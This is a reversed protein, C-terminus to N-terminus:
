SKSPRVLTWLRVHPGGSLSQNVYPAHRQVSPALRSSRTPPQPWIARRHGRSTAVEEYHERSRRESAAVAALDQPARHRLARRIRSRTRSSRHATTRCTPSLFASSTSSTRSRRLRTSPTPPAFSARTSGVRTSVRPLSITRSTRSLDASTAQCWKGLAAQCLRRDSRSTAARLCIHKAFYASVYRANWKPTSEQIGCDRASSRNPRHSAKTVRTRSSSCVSAFRRHYSLAHAACYSATQHKVSSTWSTSTNTYINLFIIVTVDRSGAPLRNSSPTRKPPRLWKLVLSAAQFHLSTIANIYWESQQQAALAEIDVTSDPHRSFYDAINSKGPQHVITYEFQTLRLAWREIRAPPRAASNGFILQIARNDTVLTFPKGFLYLWLRECGWVAALAEKECQSYRRETDTLLRSAFCVIRRDHQDAPNAQALVVGLGVPSADVIVETAWTPDFYALCRTTIACKLQEFAHQEREGWHWKVGGKTLNRLPETISAMDAIFRASYQASGLLSRLESVNNPASAEKLAKVRDLTPAAGQASFSIGFFTLQTRYLECKDVNLTLGMEELRELVALLHRQHEAETRGFVLVDDTMNIQGACGALISRITDTFIESASAIGMHLRRYRYLGQHTVIATLQRSQEALELQHFAKTLDLKSFVTAGNVALIIDDLTKIPYRQRLVAKNLQKSDCTLRVKLPTPVITQSARRPKWMVLPDNVPVIAVNSRQPGKPVVVLNSIWPTPGMSKDVRELIGEKVQADLETSVVDRLHFAIPRLKQAVPRVTPDVELVVQHDKICGLRGSFANPFRTKLEDTTSRVSQSTTTATTTASTASTPTADAEFENLVKVIGLRTASNFCLLRESEGRKIIFGVRVTKGRFTIDAAFQGVIDLPSSSGFGFFDVKCPSINPKNVLEAYTLEDIVNVPAGTDVLFEINSDCLSITARPGSNLRRTSVHIPAFENACMEQYRVFAQFQEADVLHTDSPTAVNNVRRSSSNSHNNFARPHQENRKAYGSANSRADSSSSSM